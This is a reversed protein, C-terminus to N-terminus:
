SLDDRSTPCVLVGRGAFSFCDLFNRTRTLCGTIAAYQTVSLSAQASAAIGVSSSLPTPATTGRHENLAVAAKVEDHKIVYGAHMFQTGCKDITHGPRNCVCKNSKAVKKIDLGM